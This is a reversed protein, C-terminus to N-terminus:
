HLTIFNGECRIQMSCAIQKKKKRCLWWFRSCHLLFRDIHEHETESLFTEKVVMDLKLRM